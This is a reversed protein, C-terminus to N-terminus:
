AAPEVVQFPILEWPDLDLLKDKRVEWLWKRIKLNHDGPAVGNLPVMTEFGWQGTSPHCTYIWKLGSVKSDDIWVELVDQMWVYKLDKTVGVKERLEKNEKLKTITFEDQMYRAVFLRMQKGDQRYQGLTARQVRLRDDRLYEYHEADLAVIGPKRMPEVAKKNRFSFGEMDHWVLAVIVVFFGGYLLVTKLRGINSLYIVIIQGLPLRELWKNLRSNKWVTSLLISVILLGGGIGPLFVYLTLFKITELNFPTFFLLTMPVFMAFFGLVFYVSTFIMSFLLSCVREIQIVFEEPRVFHNRRVEEPLNDAKVGHPYVYSLGVYGAWLGRLVLHVILIVKLGTLLMLCINYQMRGLVEWVRYDQILMAFFNYLHTPLFFVFTLTIGSIIIEPEWSRNQVEILWDPTQKDAM